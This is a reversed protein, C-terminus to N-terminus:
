REVIRPETAASSSICRANIMDTNAGGGHGQVQNTQPPHMAPCKTCYMYLCVSIFYERLDRSTLGFFCFAFEILIMFYFSFNSLYITYTSVLIDVTVM